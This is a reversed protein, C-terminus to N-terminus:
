PRARGGTFSVFARWAPKPKFKRGARFLGVSDCFNCGPADKWSFWYAGKLRLRRQNETLYGYAGRLERVQGRIGQEFAVQNFNNQSGWGMETVYLDPRDRADRSVEHIAEVLEELTETDVAYPHLAVGDFRTKFGPVAYLRELFDTAPMGRRGSATPEGFLGSLVIKAGPDAAKIARSSATLLKAYAPPSVPFAFYFFNAENWIQWTRIPLPLPIAPEYNVGEVEHDKWFEGGPGYREVAAKLFAAWARRQAANKVPLATPKGLWRPTGYVFPLVRVGARSTVEVVQDIGSWNYGGNRTPQVTGWSVPLRVSEIGGAAMYSLDEDTLTTQPVIGFFGRPVKAPSAGVGSNAVLLTTLGALVLALAAIPRLRRM